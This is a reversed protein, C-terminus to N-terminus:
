QHAQLSRRKVDATVGRGKSGESETREASGGGLFLRAHRDFRRSSGVVGDAVKGVEIKSLVLTVLGRSILWPTAPFPLM